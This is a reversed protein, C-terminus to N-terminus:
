VNNLLSKPYDLQELIQYGGNIYSIGEVLEYTYELKNNNEHVMMKQNIIYKNDKFKECMNIYHTTIVYDVTSKYKNLGNLYITACLVADSPNTGSYIEDFICFHRKTKNQDIFMIIDKCRRAEAQFLSDRNSTDPINLYSHYYDYIQTTCNTYCGYGISQSLFLNILLSKILTTKGSANPGTIFVNKDLGVDNVIKEKNLYPLYYNGTIVPKKDKKTYNCMNLSNNKILFSINHLDFNYNNLHILYGILKDYESNNFLEFNCKLLYGVKGYKIINDECNSILCLKHQMKQILEKHYIMTKNFKNFSKRKKTYKYINDILLDGNKLFNDYEDLFNIIYEINNYFQICSIINNYVSLGYFFMSTLLYLNSQMSNQTFNMIGKIFSQNLIIKKMLEWYQSFNMKIGKMYLAFYPIILGLIPTLLSFVPSCINYIALLQLFGTITNLKQFKKFQIYQFNSLFNKQNKFYIYKEVFDDMKNDFLNYSKLLKQSDKLYKADLSYLSSWKDILLGYKNTSNNNKIIHNMLNNENNLELDDRVTDSLARHNCYQIPHKFKYRKLYDTINIDEKKTNDKKLDEDLISLIKNISGKM